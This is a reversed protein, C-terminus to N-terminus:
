FILFKVNMLLFDLKKQLLPPIHIKKAFIREKIQIHIIFCILM